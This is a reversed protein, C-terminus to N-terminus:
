GNFLLLIIVILILILSAGTVIGISLKLFKNTKENEENNDGPKDMIHNEFGSDVLIKIAKEYQNVPVELRIGGIANSVFNHVQVTLEDRIYCDINNGQLASKAITLESPYTFTAIHIYNTM